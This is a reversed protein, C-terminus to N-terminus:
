TKNISPIVLSKQPSRKAVTVDIQDLEMLGASM